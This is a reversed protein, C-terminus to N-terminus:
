GAIPTSPVPQYLHYAGTGLALVATLIGQLEPPLFSVFTPAASVAAGAVLTLWPTM